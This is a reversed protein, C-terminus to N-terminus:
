STHVTGWQCIDVYPDFLASAVSEARLREEDSIPINLELRLVKIPKKYRRRISEPQDWFSKHLQSELQECWDVLTDELEETQIVWLTELRHPLDPEAQPFYPFELEGYNENRDPPFPDAYVVDLPNLVRLTEVRRFHSVVAKIDTLLWGALDLSVSVFREMDFVNCLSLLVHPLRYPLGNADAVFRLKPTELLYVEQGSLPSMDDRYMAIDIRSPEDPDLSTRRSAIFVANLDPGCHSRELSLAMPIGLRAHTNWTPDSNPECYIDLQLNVTPPLRVIQLFSTEQEDRDAFHLTRLRPLELERISAASFGPAFTPTVRVLELFQLTERSSFLAELLSSSPIKSACWLHISLYTLANSRWPVVINRLMVTRLRPARLVPLRGWNEAIPNGLTMQARALDLIELDDFEYNAYSEDMPHVDERLDLIHLSQIRSCLSASETPTLNAKPVTLTWNEDHIDSSCVTTIKLPLINGARRLCEATARPLHGLNDAWLHCNDVLLKRWRSCVHTLRLWELSGQEVLPIHGWTNTDLDDFVDEKVSQYNSLAAATRPIHPPGSCVVLSFVISLVEAPLRFIPSLSANRRVRIETVLLQLAREARDWDAEANQRRDIAATHLDFAAILPHSRPIDEVDASESISEM